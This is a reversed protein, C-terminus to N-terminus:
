KMKDVSMEGYSEVQCSIGSLLISSLGGQQGKHRGALEVKLESDWTWISFITGDRLCWFYIGLSLNIDEPHPGRRYGAMLLMTSEFDTLLICIPESLVPSSVFHFSKKDKPFWKINTSPLVSVYSPTTVNSSMSYYSFDSCNTMEHCTICVVHSAHVPYFSLHLILDICSFTRQLIKQQM